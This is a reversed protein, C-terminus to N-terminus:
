DLKTIELIFHTFKLDKRYWRSSEWHLDLTPYKKLLAKRVQFLNETEKEFSLKLVQHRNVNLKKEAEDMFPKLDKMTPTTTPVTGLEVYKM